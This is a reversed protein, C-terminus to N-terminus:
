FRCRATLCKLSCFLAKKLAPARKPIMEDSTSYIRKLLPYHWGVQCRALHLLEYPLVEFIEHVLSICCHDVLVHSRVEVVVVSGASLGGIQCTVFLHHDAHVLRHGIQM